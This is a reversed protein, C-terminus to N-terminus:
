SPFEWPKRETKEASAAQKSHSDESKAKDAQNADSRSKKEAVAASGASQEAGGEPKFESPQPSAAPKAQV